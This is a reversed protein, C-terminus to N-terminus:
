RKTYLQACEVAGALDNCVYDRFRFKGEAYRIGYRASIVGQIREKTEADAEANGMAELLAATEWKEFSDAAESKEEVAAGTPTIMPTPEAPAPRMSLAQREALLRVSKELSDFRGGMTELMRIIRNIKWYWCMVERLLIFLLALVVVTLGVGVPLYGM